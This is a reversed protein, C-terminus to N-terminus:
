KPTADRVDQEEQWKKFREAERRPTDDMRDMAAMYSAHTPFEGKKIRESLGMRYRCCIRVWEDRNERVRCLKMYLWVAIAAFIITTLLFVLMLEFVPVNAM